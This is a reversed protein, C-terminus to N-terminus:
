KVDKGNAVFTGPFTGANTFGGFAGDVIGGVYVNGAADTTLASIQDNGPTGILRTWVTPGTTADYAIM